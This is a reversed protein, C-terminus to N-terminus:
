EQEDDQLKHKKQFEMWEKVIDQYANLAEEFENFKWTFKPPAAIYFLGLTMGKNTEVPLKIIQETKLQSEDTVQLVMSIAWNLQNTDDVIPHLAATYGITMMPYWIHGNSDVHRHDSIREPMQKELNAVLDTNSIKWSNWYTQYGTEMCIKYIDTKPAGEPANEMEITECLVRYNGTIPSKEDYGSKIKDRQANQKKMQTTQKSM